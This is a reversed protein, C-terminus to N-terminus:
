GSLPERGYVQKTLAAGLSLWIAVWDITPYRDGWISGANSIIM